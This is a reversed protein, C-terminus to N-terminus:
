LISKMLSVGYQYFATPYYSDSYLFSVENTKKAYYGNVVTIHRGAQTDFVVQDYDNGHTEDLMDGMKIQLITYNTFKTKRRIYDDEILNIMKSIEQDHYPMDDKYIIAIVELMPRKTLFNTADRTYRHLIAYADNSAFVKFDMKTLRNIFAQSSLDHKTKVPKGETDKLKLYGYQQDYFFLRPKFWFLVFLMIILLVLLLSLKLDTAWSTLFLVLVLLLFVLITLLFSIFLKRQKKRIQEM